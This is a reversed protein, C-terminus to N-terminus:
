SGGTVLWSDSGNAIGAPFADPLENTNDAFGSKVGPNCSRRSRLRQEFLWRPETDSYSRVSGDAFLINCSGGAARPRPAALPPRPPPCEAPICRPLAAITKCRPSPGAPGGATLGGYPTGSSFTPPVMISNQIPGDTFSKVVPPARASATRDQDKLTAGTVAGCGLLPVHSMPAGTDSLAQNM